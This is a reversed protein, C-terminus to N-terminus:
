RRRRRLDKMFENDIVDDGAPVSEWSADGSSKSRYKERVGDFHEILAEDDMWIHEPPQDDESMEAWGLVALAHAVADTLYWPTRRPDGGLWLADAGGARKAISV